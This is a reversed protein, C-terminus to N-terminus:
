EKIRYIFYMPGLILALTLIEGPIFYPLFNTNAIPHSNIVFQIVKFTVISLIVLTFLHTFFFLWDLYKSYTKKVVYFIYTYLIGRILLLTGAIFIPAFIASSLENLSRSYFVFLLILSIILLTHTMEWTAEVYNRKHDKRLAKKFSLYTEYIFLLVYISVPILFLVLGSYM